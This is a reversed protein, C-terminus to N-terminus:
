KSAGDSPSSPAAESPYAPNSRKNQRWKRFAWGGLALAALTPLSRKALAATGYGILAGKAGSNKGAVKEGMWAGLLKGIMEQVGGKFSSTRLAPVVLFTGPARNPIPVLEQNPFIGLSPSRLGIKRLKAPNAHEKILQNCPEGFGASRGLLTFWTTAIAM